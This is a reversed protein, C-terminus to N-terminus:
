AVEVLDHRLTDRKAEFFPRLYAIEQDNVGCLNRLVQEQTWRVDMATAKAMTNTQVDICMTLGPETATGTVRPCEPLGNDDPKWM